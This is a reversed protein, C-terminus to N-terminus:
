VNNKILIKITFINKTQINMKGGFKGLEAQINNLGNGYVISEPIMGNNSINVEVNNKNNVIEVDIKTAKGHRIANTSTEKIIKYILARIKDQTPVEGKVVLEVGIMKLVKTLRMLYDECADESETIELNSLMQKLEVLNNSKDNLIFMHLISLQQALNDHIHGKISLLEQERQIQDIKDLNANLEINAKELSLKNQESQKLLKEEITVDTCSIQSHTNSFTFKYSKDKVNVIFTNDSVLRGNEKAKQILTKEINQVKTYSSIELSLFIRDLSNNIYTIKGYSNVFAIGDNLGDLASKIALRGPYKKVSEINEFLSLLARM